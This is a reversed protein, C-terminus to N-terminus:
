RLLVARRIVRQGCADLVILYCGDPTDPVPNWSAFNAGGAVSGSALDELLRGSLDFVSLEIQAPEPLSYSIDLSSSFPNPSVTVGVFPSPDEEGVGVGGWWGDSDTRVLLADSATPPNTVPYGGSLIYGGDSCCSISSFDCLPYEREWILNGSPDLRTIYGSTGGAYPQPASCVVVCSDSLVIDRFYVSDSVPQYTWLSDGSGSVALIRNGISACIYDDDVAEIAKINANYGTVPEFSREWIINGETSINVLYDDSFSDYGGALYTGDGGECLSSIETFGGIHWEYNSDSDIKVVFDPFTSNLDTGSVLYGLDSTQIIRYGDVYSGLEPYLIENLLNGELDSWRLRLNYESDSDDSVKLHDTYVICSDATLCFASGAYEEFVAVSDGNEAFMTLGNHPSPFAFRMAAFGGDPLELAGHFYSGGDIHYTRFFTGGSSLSTLLILLGSLRLVGTM